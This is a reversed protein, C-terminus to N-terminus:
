FIFGHARLLRIAEQRNGAAEKYIQEPMLRTNGRLLQGSYGRRTTGETTVKRGSASSMGRRANVVQNLDAGDKVAQVDAKSMGRIQGSRFLEIGSKASPYSTGYVPVHFCDCYPHREFGSSWRYFEGGLIACRACCPPAAIRVYGRLVTSATIGVGDAVRGADIAQTGVIRDLVSGGVALAQAVSAGQQLAMLSQVLPSQLLTALSRGDSAVGAFAAANVLAAVDDVGQVSLARSLYGNSEDAAKHQAATLIKAVRPAVASWSGRLDASDVTRWERASAKRALRAIRARQARHRTAM